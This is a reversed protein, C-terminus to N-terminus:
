ATGRSQTEMMGRTRPINKDDKAAAFGSMQEAGVEVASRWPAAGKAAIFFNPLAGDRLHPRSFGCYNFAVVCVLRHDYVLLM